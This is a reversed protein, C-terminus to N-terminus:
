RRKFSALLRQIITIVILSIATFIGFWLGTNIAHNMLLHIPDNSHHDDYSFLVFNMGTALIFTCLLLIFIRKNRM